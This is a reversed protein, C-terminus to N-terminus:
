SATEKKVVFCSSVEDEDQQKGDQEINTEAFIRMKEKNREEQGPIFANHAAKGHARRFPLPSDDLIITPIM